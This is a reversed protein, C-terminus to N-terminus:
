EDCEELWGKQTSTFVQFVRKELLFLPYPFAFLRINTNKRHANRDRKANRAAEHRITNHIRVLIPLTGGINILDEATGLGAIQWYLRGRLIFRDYIAFCRFIKAQYHRFSEE